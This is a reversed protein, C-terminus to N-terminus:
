RWQKGLFYGVVGSVASIVSSVGISIGILRAKFGIMPCTKTAHDDIGSAVESEVMSKMENRFLQVAEKGGERGAERAIQRVYDPLPIEIKTGNNHATAMGTTRGM